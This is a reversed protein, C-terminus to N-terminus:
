KLQENIKWQADFSNPSNNVGCTNSCVSYPTSSWTKELDVFDQSNLLQELEQDNAFIKDGVFCCPLIRGNASVYLSKEAHAHCEIRDPSTVNPLVFKKPPALWSIPKSLFRRSVKARFWTFGLDKALAKASEVQHQNHEFILMDWHASGGADIFAKANSIVRDWHINKRYIHNTDSLGDISFVVYDCPNNFLKGINHWWTATRVGGNTNMGLVISPNLERFWKYIKETHLGAAPDGFTGCMFVKELQQVFEPSFLTKLQDVSLNSKDLKDNYLTADERACQPCAANCVTTPEIHIVRINKKAFSM